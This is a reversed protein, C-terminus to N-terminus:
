FLKIPFQSFLSFFTYGTAILLISHKFGAIISGESMKGTVLGAFFGQIIIFNVFSQTFIEANVASATEGGLVGTAPVLTPILVTQLVILIFLFVFYILYSTIIQSHVSASREKKLKYITILSEGVATLTEGIKGGYKYTEIITNVSRRITLSGTKDAFTKLAKKFPIGWDVQATMNNVHLSLSLYDRKSCNKLAMPLTMGANISDKLDRIFVLFQEEMEKSTRYKKYFILVPPIVAILGGIVNLVPVVIPFLESVVTISFVFISIGVLISVVEYFHKFM